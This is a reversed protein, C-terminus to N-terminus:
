IRTIIIVFSFAKKERTKAIDGVAVVIAKCEANKRRGVRIVKESQKLHISTVYAM